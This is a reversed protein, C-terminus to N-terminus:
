DDEVWRSGEEGIESNFLGKGHCGSSLEAQLGGWSGGRGGKSPALLRSRCRAGKAAEGIDRLADAPASDGSGKHPVTSM